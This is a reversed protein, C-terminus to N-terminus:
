QIRTAEIVEIGADRARRVMDATGRGGPFSVVADPKEKDLMEQNRIPGAARGHKQWDARYTRCPIGAFEAFRRALKDAGDAGGEVILTIGRQKHLGSLWAGVTVADDFDRGGCALVIM